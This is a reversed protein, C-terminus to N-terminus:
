GLDPYRLKLAIGDFNGMSGNEVFVVRGNKSLVTEIITEVLDNIRKYSEDNAQQNLKMLYKDSSFYAPKILDKEVILELGKGEAATRWVDSIGVAIMESGVLDPLTSLLNNHATRFSRQVEGWAKVSFDQLIDVNFNGQIKGIVNNLNKTLQLYDTILRKDGALLIPRGFYEYNVLKKDAKKFFDKMRIEQIETKDKEFQKFVTSGNSTIRSADSYEYEIIYELPFDTNHVENLKSGLGEFLRVENEQLSLVYYDFMTQNYYLLDRVYFKDSISIKEVVSFPFRISKSITSSVFIGLGDLSHNFDIQEYQKELNEIVNSIDKQSEKSKEILLNKVESVIKKFVLKDQFRDPMLRHTPLIISVCFEEKHDLIEEIEVDSM